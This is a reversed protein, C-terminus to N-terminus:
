RIFCHRSWTYPRGLRGNLSWRPTGEQYPYLLHPKFTVVTERKTGFKPILLAIGRSCWIGDHCIAKYHLTCSPTQALKFWAATGCSHQSTNPCASFANNSYICSPGHYCLPKLHRAVFRFTAPEIGAPTLPNKM